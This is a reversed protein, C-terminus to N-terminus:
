YKEGITWEINKKKKGGKKKKKNNQKKSPCITLGRRYPFICKQLYGLLPFVRDKDGPCPEGEGRSSTPEVREVEGRGGGEGVM